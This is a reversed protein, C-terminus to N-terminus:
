VSNYDFCLEEGYCINRITYIGLVYSGKVATVRIDSRPLILRLTITLFVTVTCAFPRWWNPDCSHSFRSTYTGYHSPDIFLVDYGKDDDTHRELIINYFDLLTGKKCLKKLADQKEFWRSPLYAQTCIYTLSQAGRLSEAIVEGYYECVFTNRSIGESRICIIGQM